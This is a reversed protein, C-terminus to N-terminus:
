IAGPSQAQNRTVHRALRKGLGILTLTPPLGWSEPIVSCDCVYLNDFETELDRDVVDNIKATGGPHSALYWSKFINGAGANKLVARAREYGQRLKAQDEKTLRKRVGGGDTLRGGLDDKIKIMVTLTGPHALLRDLRFVEAALAAYLLPPVTMDTMMFGEEAMNLGGAMPVERGGRIDRGEGMVVILPDFFFNYGANKIGTRRLILPTGIGGASIIVKPAFARELSGDRECEVGVATKGELIVRRVKAGSILVAGRELAEEVFLRATWKAGFPCGLSCKGCRPRCKDQFIFKSLPRWDYGLDRGSAMLRRAMPGMLEGSLPAIPLEKKAEEIERSINVGYKELMALPPDFATAYYYVSSGGTTIGRFLALLDYTLLLCKGPFIIERAAQWAAGRIPAYPGWELILAKQGRKALERAATAGGPGSGVVIVDFEPM